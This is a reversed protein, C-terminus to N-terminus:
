LAPCRREKAKKSRLTGALNPPHACHRCREADRVLLDPKGGSLLDEEYPLLIPHEQGATPGLKCFHCIARAAPENSAELLSLHLAKSAEFCRQTREPKGKGDMGLLYGANDCLFSPAINVTHKSPM